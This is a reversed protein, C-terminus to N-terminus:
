PLFFCFCHIDRTVKSVFLLNYEFDHVYLVDQVKGAETLRCSGIHTVMTIDGNPLVERGKISSVTKIDNLMDLSSVMHNTAGTDIIWQKKEIRTMLSYTIGGINDMTEKPLDKNRM